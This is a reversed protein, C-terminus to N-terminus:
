KCDRIMDLWSAVDTIGTTAIGKSKFYSALQNMDDPVNTWKGSLAKEDIIDELQSGYESSGLIDGLTSLTKNSQLEALSKTGTTNIDETTVEVTPEEELVVEGESTFEGFM